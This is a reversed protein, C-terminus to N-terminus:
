DHRQRHPGPRHGNGLMSAAHSSAAPKGSAAATQATKVAAANRSRRPHLAESVNVTHDAGIIVRAYPAVVTIHEIRLSAPSSAYRFGAIHLHQWKIFDQKLDDDVTRLDDVDLGGSASMKGNAQRDIDLTTSLSGSAVTLATYKAFYPQLPRLDFRSLELKASLAEPQLSGQATLRLQGKGNVGSQLAVTLRDYPSSDYGTITASLPGLTLDAAPKVGRDQLSM